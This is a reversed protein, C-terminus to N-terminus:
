ETPTVPTPTVTSQRFIMEDLEANYFAHVGTIDGCTSGDGLVQAPIDFGDFSWDVTLRPNAKM